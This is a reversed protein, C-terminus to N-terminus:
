LRYVWMGDAQISLALTGRKTDIVTVGVLTTTVRSVPAYTAGLAVIAERTFSTAALRLAAQQDFVEAQCTVAVMVTVQTARSGVAQDARISASCAPITVMWESSRLQSRVRFTTSQTLVDVLPRALGDIDVQRVTPYTQADEGGSFGATNKVAVGAACCLGDIDLSIPLACTQVGTVCHDRIGDEAQLFVVLCRISWTQSGGRMEQVM